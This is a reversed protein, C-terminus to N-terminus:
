NIDKNGKLIPVLKIKTDSAGVYLPPAFNKPASDLNPAYSQLLISIHDLAPILSELPCKPNYSLELKRLIKAIDAKPLKDQVEPNAILVSLAETESFYLLTVKGQLKHLYDLFYADAKSYVKARALRVFYRKLFYRRAVHLLSGATYGLLPFILPDPLLETPTQTRAWFGILTGVALGLFSLFYLIETYLDSERAVVVVLSMNLDKQAERLKTSLEEQWETRWIRTGSLWTLLKRLRSV